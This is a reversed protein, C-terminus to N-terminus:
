DDRWKGNQFVTVKDSNLDKRKVKDGKRTWKEDWTGDRGKDVKARDWKGDEDDDYVNVNWTSKFGLADKYKKAGAKDTLLMKALETAETSEGRPKTAAPKKDSKFQPSKSVVKPVAIKLNKAVSSRVWATGTWVLAGNSKEWRGEKRTWKEDWKGDREYDVKARDYIGDGDDDYLNVKWSAKSGLADQNKRGTAQANALRMAGAYIRKGPAAADPAWAGKGRAVPATKRAVQKDSSPKIWSDKVWVWKKKGKGKEWQGQNRTWKEDWKGDRDRDVKARDYTGDGDDDYLNVKWSAKGGLADKKKKTTAKSHVLVMSQEYLARDKKSIKETVPAATASASSGTRGASTAGKKAGAAAAPGSSSPPAYSGGGCTAYVMAGVIVVGTMGITGNRVHQYRIFM